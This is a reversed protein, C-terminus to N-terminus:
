QSLFFFRYAITALVGVAIPLLWSKWSSDGDGADVRPISQTEKEEKSSKESEHLVGVQYKKMMDRADSSHGVDEFAETADKGVQELLVEEGGPHTKVSGICFKKCLTKAEDSHGVEDFCKSGDQGALGLLVENGGPHEDLFDTLDHVKGHIVVWCSEEQNHQSIETWSYM